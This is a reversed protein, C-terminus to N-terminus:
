PPSSTLEAPPNDVSGQRGQMFPPQIKPVLTLIPKRIESTPALTSGTLAPPYRLLESKDKLEEHCIRRGGGEKRNHFVIGRNKVIAEDHDARAQQECSESTSHLPTNGTARAKLIKVFKFVGTTLSPPSQEPLPLVPSLEQYACRIFRDIESAYRKITSISKGTLKAIFQKTLTPMTAVAQKIISNIAQEIIALTKAHRTTNTTNASERQRNRLDAISTVRTRIFRKGTFWSRHKWTYSSISKATSKIDHINLDSPNEESCVVMMHDFFDEQTYFNSVSSYARIRSTEFLLCRHGLDGNNHDITRRKYKNFQIINDKNKEKPGYPMLPQAYAKLEALSYTVGSELTKWEKHYPNKTLTGTFNQDANYLYTLISQVDKYFQLQKKNSEGMVYIPLHLQFILHAHGNKVNIVAYTPVPLNKAEWIFEMNENAIPYDIDLSIFSYKFPNNLQIHKYTLAHIKTRPKVGFNYNDACYPKKPLQEIFSSKANTALTM